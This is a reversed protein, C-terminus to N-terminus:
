NVSTSEGDKAVDASFDVEDVISQLDRIVGELMEKSLMCSIPLLLNPDVICIYGASVDEFNGPLTEVKCGAVGVIIGPYLKVSKEFMDQQHDMAHRHFALHSNENNDDDM